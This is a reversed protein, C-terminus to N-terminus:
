QFFNPDSTELERCFAIFLELLNIYRGQDKEEENVWTIFEEFSVWGTSRGLTGALLDAKGSKWVHYVVEFIFGAFPCQPVGKQYLVQSHCSPEEQNHNYNQPLACKFCYTFRQFVFSRKFDYYM